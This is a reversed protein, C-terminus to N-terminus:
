QEFIYTYQELISKDVKIFTEGRLETIFEPFAKIAEHANDSMHIKLASVNARM